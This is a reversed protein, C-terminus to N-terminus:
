AHQVAERGADLEMPQWAQLTDAAGIKKEICDPCQRVIRAPPTPRPTQIRLFHGCQAPIVHIM